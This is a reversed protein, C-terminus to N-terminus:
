FNYFQDFSQLIKHHFNSLKKVLPKESRQFGFQNLHFNRLKKLIKKSFSVHPIRGKKKTPHISKKKELNRLLKEETLLNLSPAFDIPIKGHIKFPATQYFRMIEFLAPKIFERSIILDLLGHELLYEATQFDEPLKEQLTQEIVRRGAFGILANPEALILDGLMAFSATVGGTTPSTCLAIYLLHARNQYVNLAASIKAMQMLSLIGEHMRAGGSACVIILILGERTAYEILRTLKEGVVSGMSGGMFNFDMIGLAVPIGELLGTGTLVADQLGTQNQAEKLRAPYSKQDYFNLADKASLTEDFPQWTGSDILSQLREHSTMHLHTHCASCVYNNEKLHKIYLLAGCQYCRTWLGGEEFNGEKEMWSLISM